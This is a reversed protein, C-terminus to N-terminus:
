RDEAESAKSDPGSQDWMTNALEEDAGSNQAMRDMLAQSATKRLVARLAAHITDKKGTTGM